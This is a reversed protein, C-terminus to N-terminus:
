ITYKPERLDLSDESFTKFFMYRSLDPDEKVTQFEKTVSYLQKQDLSIPFKLQYFLFMPFPTPTCVSLFFNCRTRTSTFIIKAYFLFM